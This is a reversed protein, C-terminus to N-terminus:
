KEPHRKAKRHKLLTAIIFGIVAGTILTLLTKNKSSSTSRMTRKHLKRMKQPM